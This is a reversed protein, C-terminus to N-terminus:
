KYQEIFDNISSQANNAWLVGGDNPTYTAMKHHFKTIVYQKGPNTHTHGINNDILSDVVLEDFLVDLNM